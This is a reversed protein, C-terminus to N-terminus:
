EEDVDNQCKDSNVLVAFSEPTYGARESRRSRGLIAKFAKPARPPTFAYSDAARDHPMPIAPAESTKAAADHQALLGSSCFLVTLTILRLPRLMPFEQLRQHM